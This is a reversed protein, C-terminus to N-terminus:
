QGVRFPENQQYKWSPPSTSYASSPSSTPPQSLVGAPPELGNLNTNNSQGPFSNGYPQPATMNTACLLNGFPPDGYPYRAEFSLKTADESLKTADESDLASNNESDVYPSDGSRTSPDRSLDTEDGTSVYRIVYANDEVGLCQCAPITTVSDVVYGKPIPQGTCIKMVPGCVAHTVRARCAGACTAATGTATVAMGEPVIDDACVIEASVKRVLCWDSMVLLAAFLLGRVIFRETVLM